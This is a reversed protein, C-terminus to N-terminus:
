ARSDGRLELLLARHLRFARRLGIVGAASMARQTSALTRIGRVPDTAAQGVRTPRRSENQQDLIRAHHRYSRAGSCSRSSRDTTLAPPRMFAIRGTNMM